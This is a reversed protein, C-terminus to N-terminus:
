VVSRGLITRAVATRRRVSESRPERRAAMPKRWTPTVTPVPKIVTKRTRPEGALSRPKRRPELGVSLEGGVPVVLRVLLIAHVGPDTM